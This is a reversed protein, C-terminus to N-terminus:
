SSEYMCLYNKLGTCKLRDNMRSWRDDDIMSRRDIYWYNIISRDTIVILWQDGDIMPLRDDINSRHDNMMLCRDNIMSRWEEILWQDDIFSCRDDIMSWADIMSRRDNIVISRRDSIIMSRRDDIVSLWRDDITSWRDDIMSWRDDILWRHNMSSEDNFMSPRDDITRWRNNFLSCWDDITPWQHIMSWRDSRHSKWPSALNLFRQLIWISCLFMDFFLICVPYNTYKKAVEWFILLRSSFLICVM